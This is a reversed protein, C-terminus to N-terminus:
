PRDGAPRGQAPSPGADGGAVRVTAGDRLAEAGRVVVREGEQVGSRVEVKGDPTRLGLNLVREKAVTGEVVFAVFGRETPRVATQPVVLAGSSQGVPVVVDAFAGPRLRDKEADDVEATVAVMRSAEEAADAVHTIRATFTHADSRVTFRVPMGPRVRAADPEPVKFRLLLPERRIMSALVTGPQVYQGTQVSRTQLVGAVPARVYADRLDLQAKLNKNEEVM